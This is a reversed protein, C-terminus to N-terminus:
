LKYENLIEESTIYFIDLQAPYYAEKRLAEERTESHLIEFVQMDSLNLIDARGGNKFIAETIITKGDKILEFAKLFKAMEHEITNHVSVKIVNTKINFSGNLLKYCKNIKNYKNQKSIM